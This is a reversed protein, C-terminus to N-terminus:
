LFPALQAGFFAVVSTNRAPHMMRWIMSNSPFVQLFGLTKHSIDQIMGELCREKKPSVVVSQSHHVGDEALVSTLLKMEAENLHEMNWDLDGQALM